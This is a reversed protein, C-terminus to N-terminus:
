QQEWGPNQKVNPELSLISSAIPWLLYHNQGKKDMLAPVLDFVKDFRILDWWRKGGEMSLELLREKLIAEDNKEPTDNTYVHNNFNDRYARERVLNIEASPDQGLANKAEAIMLLIDAYRYFIIDNFFQRNGDKVLGSGKLCIAQYFVREGEQNTTFLEHFTANRRTDDLEFQNRFTASPVTIGQGGGIPFLIASTESDIDPPVSNAIIWTRWYYNNSTVEIEQFRCAMIIEKNGKNAYPFIDGFEPLLSVDAKQVEQLAQLATTFDVNGGNMKKGTWLYVDAKLAQTAPRSWHCRGTQFNDDPFLQIAQDIDEKILRFVDAQSSREKYLVDPSTSEIPETHIILDGWTRTMVFYMFARMAYEQALARNKNAEQIFSIGPVYKIILNASNIVTYYAQWSYAVNSPNMTHLYYLDMAGSGTVGITMLESRLDGLIPISESSVNRFQVYMGNLGGDVDNETKWFSANSITSISEVDLHRTCSFLFFILFVPIFKKLFYISNNM